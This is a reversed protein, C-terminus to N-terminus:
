ETIQYSFFLHKHDIDCGSQEYEEGSELSKAPAIDVILEVDLYLNHDEARVYYHYSCEESNYLAPEELFEEEAKKVLENKVKYLYREDEEDVEIQEGSSPLVIFYCDNEKLVSESNGWFAPDSCGTSLFILAFMLAIICTKKM